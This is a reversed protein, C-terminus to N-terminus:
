RNTHHKDNVSRLYEQVIPLSEATHNFRHSGGRFIHMPFGDLVRSTNCASIVEDGSDLLVLPLYGDEIHTKIENDNYSDIVYQTLTNNVGTVYNTNLIGQYKQLMTKPDHCPNIIVAPVKLHTAIEAAWYGGLSTGIMVLDDSHNICSKLHALIDQHTGYTDYTVGSVKGIGELTKIKAHESDYGSNFGHLYIFRRKLDNIM